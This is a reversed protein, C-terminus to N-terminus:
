VPRDFFCAAWARSVYPRCSEEMQDTRWFRGPTPVDPCM